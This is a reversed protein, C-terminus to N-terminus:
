ESGIVGKWKEFEGKARIVVQVSEIDKIVIDGIMRIADSELVALIREALDLNNTYITLTNKGMKIRQHREISLSILFAVVVGGIFSLIYWIM